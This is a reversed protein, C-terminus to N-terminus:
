NASTCVYTYGIKIVFFYTLTLNLISLCKIQTVSLDTIYSYTSILFLAACIVHNNNRLNSQLYVPIHMLAQPPTGSTPLSTLSMEQREIKPIIM